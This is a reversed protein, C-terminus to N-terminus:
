RRRAPPTQFRRIKFPGPETKGKNPGTDAKPTSDPFQIASRYCSNCRGVSHRHNPWIAGVQWQLQEEEGARAEDVTILRSQDGVQEFLVADEALEVDVLSWSKSAVLM